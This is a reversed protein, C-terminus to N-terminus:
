HGKKKKSKTPPKVQQPRDTSTPADSSGAAQALILDRIAPSIPLDVTVNSSAHAIQFAGMLKLAPLESTLSTLTSEAQAASSDDAYELVAHGGPSTGGDVRLTARKLTGVIPQGHPPVDARMKELADGTVVVDVLGKGGGPSDPAYASPTGGAFAANMREVSIASAAVVWTNGPLVALRVAQDEEGGSTRQWEDVGSVPSTVKKWFPKQADDVMVDPTSSAPVGGAIVVADIDPKGKRVAVVIVDCKEIAKLYAAGAPDLRASAAQGGRDSLTGAFADSALDNPRVRLQSDISDDVLVSYWDKPKDTSQGAHKPSGGCSPLIAISSVASFYLLGRRFSTVNM